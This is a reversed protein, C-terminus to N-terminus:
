HVGKNVRFTSENLNFVGLTNNKRKDTTQNIFISPLKNETSNLKATLNTQQNATLKCCLCLYIAAYAVVFVLLVM